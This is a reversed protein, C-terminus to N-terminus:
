NPIHATTNWEWAWVGGLTSPATDNYVRFVLWQYDTIDQVAPLTLTIESYGGVAWDTIKLSGAETGYAHDTSYEFPSDVNKLTLQTTGVAQDFYGVKKEAPLEAQTDTAYLASIYFVTGDPLKNWDASFIWIALGTIDAATKESNSLPQSLDHRFETWEGPACLTGGFWAYGARLFFSNPNYVRYVLYGYDSVDKEVLNQLPMLNNAEGVTHTVKMSGAETEYKHATDYEVTMAGGNMTQLAVQKLGYAKDFYGIKGPVVDEQPVLKEAYLASLYFVTDPPLYNQYDEALIRIALGTINTPEKGSNSLPQSLDAVVETWVGAPCLTNGFWAYGARLAFANPNYVRYVLTDYGSVDKEILNQLPLLNNEDFVKHTVKLSGAEDGYYRDVTYDIEMEGGNMTSIGVQQVGYAKDFYAIKGQVIEDEPVVSPPVDMAYLASLYFEVGAPLEGYDRALVRVGLGTIDTTTKGSAYLPESLDYVVETWVGGPCLTNGFWAYGARLAFANPNYVRYVLYGYDSVDSELLNQLRLLNFDADWANFTVKMSGEEIGYKRATDYATTINDGYGAPAAVQYLGFEQDFYGIKGTVVESPGDAALVTYEYDKANGFSGEAHIVIRYGGTAHQATFGGASLDIEQKNSSDPAPYYIKLHSKTLDAGGGYTFHPLSYRVGKFFYAPIEADEDITVTPPAKAFAVKLVADAIKADGATFTLEYTGIKDANIAKGDQLLTVDAGDPAKAGKLTVRYEAYIEGNADVVEFDPVTYPGCEAQQVETPVNIFLAATKNNGCAFMGTALLACLLVAATKQLRQLLLKKM